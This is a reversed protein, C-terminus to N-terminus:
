VNFVGIDDLIAYLEDGSAIIDSALDDLDAATVLESRVIEPRDLKVTQVIATAPQSGPSWVGHVYSNREIRASDIRSMLDLLVSQAQESRFDSILTKIWKIQTSNAVGQNLVYMAGKNANLLYSLFEATLAEVRASAIVIRGLAQMIEPAIEDM